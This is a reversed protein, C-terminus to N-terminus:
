PRAAADSDDAIGWELMFRDAVVLIRAEALEVDM